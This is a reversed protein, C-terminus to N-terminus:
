GIPEPYRCESLDFLRLVYGRLSFGFTGTRRKLSDGGNHGM